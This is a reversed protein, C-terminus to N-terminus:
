WPLAQYQRAIMVLETPAQKDGDVKPRGRTRIRATHPLLLEADAARCSVRPAGGRCARQSVALRRSDQISNFRFSLPSRLPLIPDVPACTPAM